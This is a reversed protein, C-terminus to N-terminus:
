FKGRIQEVEDRAVNEFEGESLGDRYFIIQQPPGNKSGFQNVAKNVMERLDVIGEMRAPQIETFAAYSTGDRDYSWVLSTVSPRM